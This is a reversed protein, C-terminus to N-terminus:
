LNGSGPKRVVVIYGNISQGKDMRLVSEELRVERLGSGEALRRIYGISHAYRGTSRLVFDDGEEEAEISFAFLGGPKLTNAIAAFLKELAGVYIFVDAALVLDYETKNEIVSRASPM